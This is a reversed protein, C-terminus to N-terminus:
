ELIIKPKNKPKNKPSQDVKLRVRPLSKEKTKSKQKSDTKSDSKKSTTKSSSKTSTEKELKSPLKVQKSATSRTRPKKWVEQIRNLFFYNDAEQHLEYSTFGGVGLIITKKGLQDLAQILRQFDGDGSILVLIDFKEQQMMVDVALDIDMNGKVSDAFVRIPKKILTYGSKELDKFFDGQRQDLPDYATYFNLSTLNCNHQFWRSIQFYDIKLSAKNAAYYLNASDIFVGVNKKKILSKLVTTMDNKNKPPIFNDKKDM